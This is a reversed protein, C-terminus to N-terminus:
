KVVSLKQTHIMNNVKMTVNYMGAAFDATNLEYNQTGANQGPLAIMAVQKGSM